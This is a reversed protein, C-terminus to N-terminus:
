ARSELGRNRRRFLRISPLKKGEILIRRFVDRLEYHLRVQLYVYTANERSSLEVTVVTPYGNNALFHSGVVVNVRTLTM